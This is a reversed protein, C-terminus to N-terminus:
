LLLVYTFHRLPRHTGEARMPVQARFSDNLSLPDLPEDTSATSATSLVEIEAFNSGGVM